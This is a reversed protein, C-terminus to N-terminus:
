CCSSTESGCCATAEEKTEEVGCVDSAKCETNVTYIKIILQNDTIKFEEIKLISTHFLENGFEIRIETDLWLPNIRDVRNLISLVKDVTMYEKKDLENPSEWLQLHTEKWNNAKGGCDVSNFQVNKVETLHYNMGAFENKAYEFLLAKGTNEKLKSIFEKTKM